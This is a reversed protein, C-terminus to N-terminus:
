PIEYACHTNKEGTVELRVYKSKSLVGRSNMSRAGM